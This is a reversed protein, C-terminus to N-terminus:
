PEQSMSSAMYANFAEILEPYQISSLYYYDSVSPLDEDFVLAQTKGMKTLLYEAVAVDLYAGETRGRITITLLTDIDTIYSAYLQGSVIRQEYASLSLGLPAGLIHLGYVGLGRREPTVMVGETYAAMPDSYYITKQGKQSSDWTPNDPFKFDVEGGVLYEVARKLPLPVFVLRIGKAKAFANLMDPGIGHYSGDRQVGWVPFYDANGIGVTYSRLGYAPLASLLLLTLSIIINSIQMVFM